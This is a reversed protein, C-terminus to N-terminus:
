THGRLSSVHGKDSGRGTRAAASAKRGTRETGRLPGRDEGQQVLAGFARHIAHEGRVLLHPLPPILEPMGVVRSGFEQGTPGVLEPTPVDGLEQSRRLPAIEVQVNSDYRAVIVGEDDLLRLRFTGGGAVVIKGDPQLVVASADWTAFPAIGDNEFDAPTLVVSDGGGFTLDLSGNPEYRAIVGGTV